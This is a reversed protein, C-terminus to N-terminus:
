MTVRLTECIPNTILVTDAHVHNLRYYTAEITLSRRCKWVKM